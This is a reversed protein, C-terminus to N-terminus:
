EFKTENISKMAASGIKRAARRHIIERAREARKGTLKTVVGDETLGTKSNIVRRDVSVPLTDKDGHLFINKRDYYPTIAEYVVNASDAHTVDMTAILKDAGNPAKVSDSEVIAGEASSIKAGIGYQVEPDSLGGVGSDGLIAANRAYNAAEDLSDKNYRIVKESM